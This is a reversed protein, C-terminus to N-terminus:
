IQNPTLDMSLGRTNAHCHLFIWDTGNETYIFTSITLADMLTVDRKGKNMNSFM